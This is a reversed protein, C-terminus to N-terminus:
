VLLTLSLHKRQLTIAQLITQSPLRIIGSRIAVSAEGMVQLHDLAGKLWDDAVSRIGDAHSPPVLETVFDLHTEHGDRVNVKISPVKATGLLVGGYEPLTVKIQSEGTEVERAIWTGLVGLNRVASSRVRSSRMAFTARVRARAGTATFEPVVSEVDVTTAQMAYRQMKEPVLFGMLMIAVVIVSLLGLAILSPWRQKARSSISTAKSQSQHSSADNSDTRSLLPTSESPSHEPDRTFLPPSRSM